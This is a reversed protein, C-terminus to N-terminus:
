AHASGGGLVRDPWYWVSHVPAEMFTRELRAAGGNRSEPLSVPGAPQETPNGHPHAGDGASDDQTHHSVLHDALRELGGLQPLDGDDISKGSLLARDAAEAFSGAEMRDPPVMLALGRSEFVRSRILQEVRPTVRPYLVAKNGHSLIDCCTNYGAMAVVLDSRAIRQPMDPIFEEIRAGCCAALNGLGIREKPEMLPGTVVEIEISRERSSGEARDSIWGLGELATSLFEYGDGGGGASLLIRVADRDERTDPRARRPEPTAYGVHLTHDAPLQYAKAADFFRPDGLVYIQDYHTKLIEDAETRKWNEQIVEPADLIDRLNLVIRTDRRKKRLFELTQLIEGKMGLPVNDVLFLHPRFTEATSLIVDRRMRKIQSFDVALNRSEYRDAGSKLVSPLKVLDAGPPLPVYPAVPSGSLVLISARPTRHRIASAIRLTRTIHGLGYTDHSYMLIRIPSLESM